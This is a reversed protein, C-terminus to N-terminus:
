FKQTEFDITKTEGNHNFDFRAAAGAGKAQWPCTSNTWSAWGYNSASNAGYNVWGGFSNNWVINEYCYERLGM